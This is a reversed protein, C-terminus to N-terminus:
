VWVTWSVSREFPIGLLPLPEAGPGVRTVPTTMPAGDEDFSYEVFVDAARNLQVRVLPISGITTHLTADADETPPTANTEPATCALSILLSWIM